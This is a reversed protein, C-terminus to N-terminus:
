ICNHLIRSFISPKPSTLNNVSTGATIDEAINTSYPTGSFVPAAENIDDMTVVVTATSTRAPTGQDAINVILYFVPTTEADLASATNVTLDGASSIDFASGTNSASTISYSLDSNPSIDGDSCGLTILLSTAAASMEQLNTSYISATCLPDNDNADTVTIAITTTGPFLYTLFIM